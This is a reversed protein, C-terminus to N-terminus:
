ELTTVRVEVREAGAVDWIREASIKAIQRDDAFVIKNCSDSVEKITNDLDNATIIWKAERVKKRSWSPPPRQVILVELHLAGELLPRGAMGGRALTSIYKEESRTKQPTYLRAFGGVFTARARGKGSLRGPIAFAVTTM